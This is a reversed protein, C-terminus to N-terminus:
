GAGEQSANHTVRGPADDDWGTGDETVSACVLGRAKAAWDGETLAAADIMDIVEGPSLRTGLHITLMRLKYHTWGGVDGPDKPHGYFYDTETEDDPPEELYLLTPPGLEATFDPSWTPVDFRFQDGIRYPNGYIDCLDGWAFEEPDIPTTKLNM